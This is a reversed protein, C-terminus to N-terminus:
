PCPDPLPNSDNCATSAMGWVADCTTLCDTQNAATCAHWTRVRCRLGNRITELDTKAADNPPHHNCDLDPLEEPNTILEYQELVMPDADVNSPTRLKWSPLPCENCSVSVERCSQNPSTCDTNNICRSRSKVSSVICPNGSCRPDSNDNCASTGGQCIGVDAPVCVKGMVTCAVAGCDTLGPTCTQCSGGRMPVNSDSVDSYGCVGKVGAPIGPRATVTQGHYRYFTYDRKYNTEGKLVGYFSVGDIPKATMSNLGGAVDWSSPLPVGAAEAITPFLDTHNAVHSSRDGVPHNCANGLLGIRGAGEFNGGKGGRLDPVGYSRTPGGHDNTFLVVTDNLIGKDSLKKYLKGISADIEEVVAWYVDGKDRGRPDLMSNSSTTDYHATTRKPATRPIHVANLSLVLFFGDTNSALAREIFDEGFVEYVRQSYPCGGAKNTNGYSDDSCPWNGQPGSLDKDGSVTLKGPIDEQENWEACCGGRPYGNPLTTTTNSPCANGGCHLPNNDFYARAATVGYGSEVFGQKWPSTPGLHWKGFYGTYYCPYMADICATEAGYLFCKEPVGMSNTCGQRLWESIFVEDEALKAGGNSGVGHRKTHRGTIVSARAPGCYASVSYYRGFVAGNAIRKFGGFEALVDKRRNCEESPCSDRCTTLYTPDICRPAPHSMPDTPDYATLDYYETPDDIPKVHLSSPLTTTSNGATEPPAPFIGYSGDSQALLRAAFRNLAPQQIRYEPRSSGESVTVPDGVWRIPPSFWPLDGWWLDDALVLVINPHTDEDMGNLSCFPNDVATVVSVTVLSLVLSCLLRSTTRM